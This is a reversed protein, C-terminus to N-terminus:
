QLIRRSIIQVETAKGIIPNTRIVNVPFTRPERKMDNGLFYDNFIKAALVSTSTLAIMEYRKPYDAVSVNSTQKEFESLSKKKDYESFVPVFRTKYILALERASVKKEIIFDIAVLRDDLFTLRVKGLDQFPSFLLVRCDKKEVDKKLWDGVAIIKIKETKDERANGLIKLAEAPTTKDLLFADGEKAAATSAGDGTQSYVPAFLAGVVILSILILRM